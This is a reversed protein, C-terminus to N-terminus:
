GLVCRRPSVSIPVGALDTRVALDGGARDAVTRAHRARDHLPGANSTAAQHARERVQPAARHQLIARLDAVIGLDLVRSDAGARNAVVDAIDAVGRHARPDVDAGARDGAVEIAHALMARNDAVVDEHAAVSHQARRDGQAVAGRGARARHHRVVDRGACRTPAYRRALFRGAVASRAPRRTLARRPGRPPATMCGCNCTKLPLALGSRACSIASASPMGCPAHWQDTLELVLLRADTDFVVHAAGIDEDHLRGALRGVVM